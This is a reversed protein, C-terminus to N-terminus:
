RQGLILRVKDVKALSTGARPEQRVVAGSGVLELHSDIGLEQYRALSQRASLGLFSPITGSPM